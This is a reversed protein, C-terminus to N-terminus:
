DRIIQDLIVTAMSLPEGALKLQLQLMVGEDDSDANKKDAFSNEYHTGGARYQGSRLHTLPLHNNQTLLMHSLAADSSASDTVLRYSGCSSANEVNKLLQSLLSAAHAYSQVVFQHSERPFWRWLSQLAGIRCPDFSKKDWEFAKWLERWGETTDPLEQTAFLPHRIGVSLKACIVSTNTKADAYGVVVGFGVARDGTVPGDGRLDGIIPGTTAWKIVVTPTVPIDVIGEM